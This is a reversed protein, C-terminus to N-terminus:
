RCRRKLGEDIKEHMALIECGSLSSQCTVYAERIIFMQLTSGQQEILSLSWM